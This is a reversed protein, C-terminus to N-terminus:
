FPASRTRTCTARMPSSSRATGGALVAAALVLAVPTGGEAFAALRTGAERASALCVVEYDRAYRELLEREVARLGAADGDVAFLVPPAHCSISSARPRPWTLEREAEEVLREEM